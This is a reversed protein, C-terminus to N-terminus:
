KRWTIYFTSKPDLVDHNVDPDCTPDDEVFVNVQQVLLGSIDIPDADGVWGEDEFEDNFQVFDKARSMQWMHELQILGMEGFGKGVTAKLSNCTRYSVRSDDCM